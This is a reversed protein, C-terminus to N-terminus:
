NNPNDDGEPFYGPTRPYKVAPVYNPMEALMNYGDITGTMLELYSAVDEDTTPKKVVGMSRSRALHTTSASRRRRPRHTRSSALACPARCLAGPWERDAQACREPNM